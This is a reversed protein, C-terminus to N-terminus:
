RRAARAAATKLGHCRWCLAQGNAPDLTAGGDRREVVHDAILRHGTREGEHTTGQCAGGARRIVLARWDRHAQTQLELDATKPPPKVRRTDITAIRSTITPIRM